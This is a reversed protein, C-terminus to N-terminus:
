GAFTAYVSRTSGFTSCRLDIDDELKWATNVQTYDMIISAGLPKSNTQFDNSASKPTVVFSPKAYILRKSIM